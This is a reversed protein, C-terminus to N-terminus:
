AQQQQQTATDGSLNNTKVMQTGVIIAKLAVPRNGMSM